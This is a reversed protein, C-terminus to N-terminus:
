APVSRARAAQVLRSLDIVAIPGREDRGIASLFEAIGTSQAPPPELRGEPIGILGEVGETLVAVRWPDSHVIAARTNPRVPIAPQGFLQNMDLVPLVEGRHNFVGRLFSPAAPIRTLPGLRVLETVLHAELAYRAGLLRLGFFWREVGAEAAAAAGNSPSGTAQDRAGEM